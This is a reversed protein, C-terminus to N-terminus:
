HKALDHSKEQLSDRHFLRPTLVRHPTKWHQRVTNSDNLYGYGTSLLHPVICSQDSILSNLYPLYTSRIPLYPLYPLFASM